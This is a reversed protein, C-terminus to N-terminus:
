ICSYIFKTSFYRKSEEVSVQANRFGKDAYFKKIAEVSTRKVNETIVRNIVLGTKPTLDDKEGKKVGNFEFKSLRPRETVNIELTLADNKLSTIYIAVDSFYNQSWLKNIAKSFNDGGPLSVEDGVNIGAISLLLNQDFYNNGTVTINAIKYKKPITQNYINLLDANLSTVNPVTDTNSNILGISDKPVLRGPITDPLVTPVQPPQQATAPQISAFCVFCLLAIASFYRM